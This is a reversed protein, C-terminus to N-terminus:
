FPLTAVTLAPPLLSHQNRSVGSMSLPGKLGHGVELEGRRCSKARWHEEDMPSFSM